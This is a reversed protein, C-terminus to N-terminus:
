ATKQRRRWWGLLGGSALILGPLGAGAIPAPVSSIPIASYNDTEFCCGLGSNQNPDSLVLKTIAEGSNAHIDTYISLIGGGVVESGFLSRLLTSGDYVDVENNRDPTSWAFGVYSVPNAFTV